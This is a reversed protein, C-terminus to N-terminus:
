EREGDIIESGEPVGITIVWPGEYSIRVPLEIIEYLTVTGPIRFKLVFEREGDGHVYPEEGTLGYSIRDDSDVEIRLEDSM